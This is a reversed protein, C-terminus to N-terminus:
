KVYKNKYWSKDSIEMLNKDGRSNGYVYLVYSDRDPYEEFFRNVKEVGYCNKTRFKGTLIDAKSELETAIVSKFGYEVAWPFIWTYLSASIILLTDNNNKHWLIRELVLENLVLPLRKKCYTICIKNFKDTEMGKIFRAIFYEKAEHNSLFHLKYAVLQPISIVVEKIFRIYGFTFILFDPLTDITTITGDFDFVAINKRKNM